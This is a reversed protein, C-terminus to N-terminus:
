ASVEEPHYIARVSIDLAAAIRRATAIQPRHRRNEARGYCEVSVGAADAVERRSLGLAARASLLVPHCRAM